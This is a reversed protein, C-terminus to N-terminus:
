NILICHCKKNHKRDRRESSWFYFFYTTDSVFRHYDILNNNYLYIHVLSSLADTCKSPLCALIDHRKFGNPWISSVGQLVLNITKGIAFHRILLITLWRNQLVVIDINWFIFCGILSLFDKFEVDRPLRKKRNTNYPVHFHSYFFVVEYKMNNSAQIYLINHAHDSFLFLVLRLSAGWLCSPSLFHLNEFVPLFLSLFFPFYMHMFQINSKYYLKVRFIYAIRAYSINTTIFIVPKEFVHVYSHRGCVGMFIDFYKHFYVKPRM